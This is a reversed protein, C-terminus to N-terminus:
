RQAATQVLDGASGSHAYSADTSDLTWGTGGTWLSSFDGTNALHEGLHGNIRDHSFHFLGYGPNIEIAAAPTNATNVYNYHAATGGMTRIKGLEDVMVDTAASVENDAIDRPDSNNNLGGHFQDIKLIQKPM